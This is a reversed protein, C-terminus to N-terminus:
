LAKLAEEAVDEDEKVSGGSVGIGGIIIGESNIIPYGGGFTILGGNSVEIGYLDKHPQAIAGLDATPMNFLRATKAKKIAIDISGLFAGDMRSFALLNAGADVVAINMLTEDIIAKAEAAALLTKAQTLTINQSLAITSYLSSMIVILSLFAKIITNTTFM